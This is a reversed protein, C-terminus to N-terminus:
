APVKLQFNAHLPYVVSRFKSQTTTMVLMVEEWLQVNDMRRRNIKFSCFDLYNQLYYPLVMHHVADIDRKTNSICMHVWPLAKHAKNPPVVEERHNYLLHFDAHSKSADSYITSGKKVHVRVKGMVTKKKLDPIVAYRVRGLGRSHKHKKGSDEFPDPTYSQSMVVVAKQRESGNGGSLLKDKLHKPRTTTFFTEDVEVEGDIMRWSDAIGIGQRIKHCMEWVPQYRKIGWRRKIYRHLSLASPCKPLLTIMCIAYMWVQLPLKSFQMVTGVKLNIRKKCKPNMCQHQLRGRMWRFHKCGCRPCVMHREKELRFAEICSEEDPYRETFETIDM